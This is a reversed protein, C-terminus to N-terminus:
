DQQLQSRLDVDKGLIHKENIIFEIKEYHEKYSERDHSKQYGLSEFFRKIMEITIQEQDFCRYVSYEGYMTPQM